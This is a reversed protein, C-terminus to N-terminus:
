GSEKAPTISTRMSCRIRWGASSRMSPFERAAVYGGALEWNGIHGTVMVAGKGRAMVEEVEDWGKVSEVLQQLGDKGLSDLLATEIFTRGLHKYSDRALNM